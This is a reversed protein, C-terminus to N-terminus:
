RKRQEYVYVGKKNSIVIDLLRDGTIDEAVLHLGVGTDDDLQHKIWSPTKGPRFEFWYLVSPETDGPDGKLHALYRKGTVFDPQGDRNIDALALGHSQSFSSDILNHKWTINGGDNQQQHWWIGYRHASSTLFDLDGDKDIDWTYMQACDEGLDAPHFTWDPQRPNVPMEWWGERIIIDKRGDNNMDDFGFGHISPKSFVITKDTSFTYAVWGTDKWPTPSRVWVMKKQRIDACVLDKKGDNDIDVFLPSENGTSSYIFHMNWPGKNKGPNEYWVTERGPIGVRVVDPWGDDNIDSSFNLFTNSYGKTASFSDAKFITHRIWKPSEFWYAGAIVDTKGDRNIDAVAVGESIFETTLTHKRFAIKRSQAFVLHSIILCCLLLAGSVRNHSQYIM